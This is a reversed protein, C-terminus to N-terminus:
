YHLSMLNRSGMACVRSLVTVEGSCQRMLDWAGGVEGRSCPGFAAETQTRVGGFSLDDREEGRTLKQDDCSGPVVEPSNKSRSQNCLAFVRRLKTVMARALDRRATRLGLAV